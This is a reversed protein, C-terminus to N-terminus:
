SMKNNVNRFISLVVPFLVLFVHIKSTICLKSKYSHVVNFSEEDYHNSPMNCKNNSLSSSLTFTLQVARMFITLLLQRKVNKKYRHRKQKQLQKERLTSMLFLLHQLFISRLVDNKIYVTKTSYLSNTIYYLLNRNRKQLFFLFLFCSQIKGKRITAILIEVSYIGHKGICCACCVVYQSQVYM